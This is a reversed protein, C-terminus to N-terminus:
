PGDVVITVVTVIYMAFLAQNQGRYKQSLRFQSLFCYDKERKRMEKEMKRERKCKELITVNMIKIECQM